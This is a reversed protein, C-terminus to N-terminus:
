SQETKFERLRRLVAAATERVMADEKADEALAEIRARLAPEDHKALTNGAAILANRKMMALKSRKMASRTFVVRRDSETWNLVGLLDFGARRPVYAEHVEAERSRQTPQNHPCVEQCIDCGFIWNGVGPLLHEDVPSRHEITLYSICKTADVSWPTIAGTPCADICRTCSGCPDPKAPRSPELELTTVIEGLLLWSGVSREILLTHKGVAGLGARQAHERELLPATDVCVRFVERPHRDRLEDCLVHLRRKMVIHYDEGRAYRAIRGEAGSDRPGETGEGWYRDGACIISKAGPVLRAPDVLLEEHRKLYTMEGQRGAALWARLEKEYRTPEARAIGARAFGLERCRQLIWDAIDPPQPM